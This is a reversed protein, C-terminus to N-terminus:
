KKKKQQQKKTQQQKKQQQQKPQQQHPTGGPGTSPGPSPGFNKKANPSSRRRSSYMSKGRPSHRAKTHRFRPSHWRMVRNRWTVIAIPGWPHFWIPRPMWVIASVFIVRGPRFIVRVPSWLHVSVFVAMSNYNNLSAEESAPEIIYDPGYIEEDGIIQGSIENEAHKELEITAIDQFDNEGLVAQIVLVKTNGESHEVIRVMDVEGDKNLDLNNVDNDQSNLKKEFDELDESDEFLDMAAFLDFDEGAETAPTQAKTQMILAVFAFVMVLVKAKM